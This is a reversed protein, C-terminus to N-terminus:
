AYAYPNSARKATTTPNHRGCFACLYSGAPHTVEPKCPCHWDTAAREADIYQKSYAEYRAKQEPTAPTPQAPLERIGLERYLFSTPQLEFVQGAYNPDPAITSHGDLLLELRRVEQWWRGRGDPDKSQNFAALCAVVEPRKSERSKNLGLMTCARTFKVGDILHFSILKRQKPGLVRYEPLAYLAKRNTADM